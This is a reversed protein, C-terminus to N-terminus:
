AGTSLDLEPILPHNLVAQSRREWRDHSELREERSKRIHEAMLEMARASEGSRVADLIGRHYQHIQELQRGDHGERHISFIRVLLRSDAVVKMIRRNGTTRLLLMHFQLDANVFRHMLERDLRRIGLRELEAKLALIEACLRDLAAQDGEDLQLQAAKGVAYVELAERLEYLEVIDARTLQTVVVRTAAQELFGESILQGIAERIPTRSIGLERSLSLELVPDGPRLESSLIKAYISRYAKQRLSKPDPKPPIAM